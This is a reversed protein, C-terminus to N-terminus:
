ICIRQFDDREDGHDNVVHAHHNKRVGKPESAKATNRQRDKGIHDCLAAAVRLIRCFVKQANENEAQKALRNVEGYVSRKIEGGHNGERKGNEGYLADIRQDCGFAFLRKEYM